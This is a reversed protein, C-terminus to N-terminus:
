LGMINFSVGASVSPTSLQCAEEESEDSTSDDHSAHNSIWLAVQHVEHHNQSRWGTPCGAVALVLDDDPVAFVLRGVDVVRQDRGFDVYNYALAMIYWTALLQARASECTTKWWSNM